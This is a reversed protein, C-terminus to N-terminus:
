SGTEDELDLDGVEYFANITYTQRLRTGAQDIVLTPNGRNTIFNEPQQEVSQGSVHQVYSELMGWVIKRADGVESDLLSHVDSVKLCIYSSNFDLDSAVLDAGGSLSTKAVASPVSTDGGSASVVASTEETNNILNVIAQIGNVPNQGAPESGGALSFQSNVAQNGDTGSAPASVDVLATLSAYWSTLSDTLLDYIDQNTYGSGGNGTAIDDVLCVAIDGDTSNVKVENQSVDVVNDIVSFQIDDGYTGINKATISFSSNYTATSKTGGFAAVFSDRFSVVIEGTSADYDARDSGGNNDIVTLSLDNGSAGAENAEITVKTSASGAYIDLKSKQSPSGIVENLDGQDNTTLNVLSPYVDSTNVQAM